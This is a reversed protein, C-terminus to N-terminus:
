LERDPYDISTSRDQQDSYDSEAPHDPLNDDYIQAGDFGSSGILDAQNADREYEQVAGTTPVGGFDSTPEFGGNRVQQTPTNSVRNNPNRLGRAAIAVLAALVIAGFCVFVGLGTILNM